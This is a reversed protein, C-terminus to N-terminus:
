SAPSEPCFRLSGAAVLLSVSPDGADNSCTLPTTGVIGCIHLSMSEKDLITGNSQGDAPLDRTVAGGGDGLSSLQCLKNHLPHPFSAVLSSGFGGEEGFFM